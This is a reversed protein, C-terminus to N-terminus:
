MPGFCPKKESEFLAPIGKQKSVAHVFCSIRDPQKHITLEALLSFPDLRRWEQQIIFSSGDLHFEMEGASM